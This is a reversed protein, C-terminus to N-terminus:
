RNHDLWSQFMLVAWLQYQWNRAGSQHEDWKRRVLDVDFYGDNKLRAPDLLEEAWDRLNGRLWMGVPVGFGMKPREILRKPVHRYLVERLPWKGSGGHIKMELPFSWALEYLRHDLLPVRAELSVGMSARDVKTLIDDPLYTVSDLYMMQHIFGDLKPWTAPSGLIYDLGTDGLVADDANQWLSTLRRYLDQSSTADLVDLLKHMKDGFQPPRRREPIMGGIGDWAGVPINKLLRTLAHMVPGPVKGVVRALKQGLLYRNYGGFVEDGGDGSLSVTVHQRALQSVLFTPIQSSDAFPEDYLGPLKPLVDLADRETVYLETHDTGLYRAVDAAHAAENYQDEWFGISFTKVPKDSQAQMAAVVSSSDIGGSLFAGLPVDSVMCKGVADQLLDDLAEVADRENGRFPGDLGAQATDQASWYAVPEGLRGARRADLSLTLVTGPVLKHIGEYISHPTPVYGHRLLASVAGRSITPSFGPYAKLSKLESGFLFTSGSYGYYLPKQGFRDRALHLERTKRDWLAFAFMGNCKILTAELGWLEIAELLTETDSHGSFVVRWASLEARIDAFNYIEGNYSIVYRGSASAMPQHGHASLDLISLRRHGLAVGCEPDGWAGADDPGRLHM